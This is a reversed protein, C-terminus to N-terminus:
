FGAPPVLLLIGRMDTSARRLMPLIRGRLQTYRAIHGTTRGTVHDYRRVSPRRLRTIATPPDSPFVVVARATKLASPPSPLSGESRLERFARARARAVPRPM